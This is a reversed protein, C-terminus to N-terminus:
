RMISAPSVKSLDTLQMYGSCEMAILRASQRSPVASDPLRFNANRPTFSVAPLHGSGETAFHGCKVGIRGKGRGRGEGRAEGGQCRVSLYQNYVKM